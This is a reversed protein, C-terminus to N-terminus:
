YYCFLKKKPCVVVSRKQKTKNQKTKNSAKKSLLLANTGRNKRNLTLNNSVEELSSPSVDVVSTNCSFGESEPTAAKHLLEKLTRVEEQLKEIQRAM